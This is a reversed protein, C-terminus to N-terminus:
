YSIKDQPTLVNLVLATKHLPIWSLRPNLIGGTSQPNQISSKPNKRWHLKSEPNQDNTPNQFGQTTNRIGLSLIGSERIKSQLNGPM